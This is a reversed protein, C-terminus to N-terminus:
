QLQEIYKKIGNELSIFKQNYGIKKLLSIDAKTNHQYQNILKEPFDVYEIEGYNLIKILINAIDNFKRSIGTGVNFIGSKFENKFLWYNVKACDDVHVFDRQHEGNKLGHSGKFLKAIKKKKLQNYFKLVVSSMENKHFENIGYVNFYRLGAISVHDNKKIINRVYNDFFLKSLAYPNLPNECVQNENFGNEGLGYVSASSAYIFKTNNKLAEHLLAKSSSYNKKLIFDGDWNTTDSCAGQHFIVEIDKKLYREINLYFNEAPILDKFKLNKINLLKKGDIFNDIILIDDYGMLNLYNVLNSGIFGVGGTVIIM